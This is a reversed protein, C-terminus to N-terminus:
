TDITCSDYAGNYCALHDYDCSDYAGYYMCAAGDVYKCYDYGVIIYSYCGAYDVNICIDTAGGTCVANDITCSKASLIRADKKENNILKLTISKKM